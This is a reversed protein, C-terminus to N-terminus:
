NSIKLCTFFIKMFVNNPLVTIISPLKKRCAIFCVLTQIFPTGLNTLIKIAKPYNKNLINSDIRIRSLLSNLPIFDDNRIYAGGKNFHVIAQTIIIIENLIQLNIIKTERSSNDSLTKFINHIKPSKLIIEKNGIGLFFRELFESDSPQIRRIVKNQLLNKIKHLCNHISGATMELTVISKHLNRGHLFGPEIGIKPLVQIFQYIYKFMETPIDKLIPHQRCAYFSIYKSKVPISNVLAKRQADEILKPYNRSLIDRSDQYAMEILVNRICNTVKDGISVWKETTQLNMIAHSIKLIENITSIKLKIHILDLNKSLSKFNVFKNLNPFPYFEEWAGSCEYSNRYNFLEQLYKSTMPNLKNIVGNNFGISILEMCNEILPYTHNTKLNGYVSNNYNINYHKSLINSVFRNLSREKYTGDLISFIFNFGDIEILYTPLNIAKNIFLKKYKEKTFLNNIETIAADFLAIFLEKDITKKRYLIQDNMFSIKLLNFKHKQKEVNFLLDIRGKNCNLEVNTWQSRSITSAAPEM